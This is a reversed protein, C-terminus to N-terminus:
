RTVAQLFHLGVSYDMVAVGGQPKWGAKIFRSVEDILEAITKEKIVYYSGLIREIDTEM